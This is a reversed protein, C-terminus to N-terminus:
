STWAPGETRDDPEDPWLGGLIRAIVRYTGAEAGMGTHTARVEVQEADPDLAHRWDVVGDTRSYVSVLPVHGPFPARLERHYRRCCPGDICRSTMLGPVGRDGLAALALGTARVAPHCAWPDLLPSGLAIVGAVREPRRVALARGLCGGRSHGIVAVPADFARAVEDLRGALADVLTGGCGVNPGLSAPVPSYGAMRMWVAMTALSEDGAMFPPVLLVPRGRGHRVGVGWFVPDFPLAVREAVALGERWLPPTM